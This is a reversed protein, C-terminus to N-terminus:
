PPAHWIRIRTRRPLALVEDLTLRLRESKVQPLDVNPLPYGIPSVQIHFDENPRM